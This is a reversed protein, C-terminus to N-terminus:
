LRGFSVHAAQSAASASMLLSKLRRNESILHDREQRLRNCQDQLSSILTSKRARCREAALRNRERKLKDKDLELSEKSFSQSQAKPVPKPLCSTYVLSNEDSRAFCVAGGLPDNVPTGGVTSHAVYLNNPQLPDIFFDLMEEVFNTEQSTETLDTSHDVSIYDLFQHDLAEASPVFCALSRETSNFVDHFLTDQFLITSNM